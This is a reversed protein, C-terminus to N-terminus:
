GVCLIVDIKKPDMGTNKLADLAAFVGMEQTGDEPSPLTKQRIGLKEIVAAETWVGQTAESIERASMRKNPLYIGTGVIGVTPIMM